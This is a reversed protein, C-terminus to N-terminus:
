NKSWLRVGEVATMVAEIEKQRRYLYYCVPAISVPYKRCLKRYIEEMKRDAEKQERRIEEMPIGTAGQAAFQQKRCLFLLNKREEEEKMLRTFIEKTRRDSLVKKRRFDNRTYPKELLVFLNLEERQRTGAFEYLRKYDQHLSKRLRRRLKEPQMIRVAGSLVQGYEPSGQLIAAAEEVSEAKALAEMMQVTLLNGELAKTKALLGSYQLLGDTM